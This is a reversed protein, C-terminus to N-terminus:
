GSPPAPFSKCYVDLSYTYTCVKYEEFHKLLWPTLLTPNALRIERLLTDPFKQALAIMWARSLPGCMSDPTTESARRQLTATVSDLLLLPVRAVCVRFFDDNFDWRSATPDFKAYAPHHEWYEELEAATRCKVCDPRSCLDDSESGDDSSHYSGDSSHYSATGEGDSSSDSSYYCRPFEREERRRHSMAQQAGREALALGATCLGRQERVLTGHQATWCAVQSDVM